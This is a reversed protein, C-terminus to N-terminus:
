SKKIAWERYTFFHCSNVCWLIHHTPGGSVFKGLGLGRGEVAHLSPLSSSKPNRCSTSCPALLNMLKGPEAPPNRLLNDILALGMETSHLGLKLM